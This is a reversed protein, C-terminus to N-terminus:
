VEQSMELLGLVEDFPMEPLFLLSQNQTGTMKLLGVLSNLGHCVADTRVAREAFNRIVGGNSMAPNKINFSNQATYVNQVLWRSSNVIFPNYLYCNDMKNADCFPQLETMVENVWGNGSSTIIDMLRGDNFTDWPAVIQRNVLEQACRTITDLYITNTKADPNVKAYDLLSMVVWSTTVSNPKRYDDDLFPSKDKVTNLMREAIKTAADYYKEDQTVGYLRSLASLVQGSYLYSNKTKVLLKGNLKAVVPRVSGDNSVRTLLWNGAQKASDLYKKDHTREYLKILTFITKSSTGVVFRGGEFLIDKKGTPKDYSYHFAGANEGEHNQMSLLFAAMPEINKEIQKYLPESDLLVEQVKLLTYLSSATYITRLKIEKEDKAADYKKFFGHTDQDMMRLLYASESQIRARVLSTDFQRVPIINGILEYTLGNDNSVISYQRDDPPYYFTIKFTLKKLNVESGTKSALDAQAQKMATNTAERLTKSLASTSAKGVGIEKGNQYIAVKATWHILYFTPSGGNFWQNDFTKIEDPTISESASKQVFSMVDRRFADNQQISITEFTGAFTTNVFFIFISCIFIVFSKKNQLKKIKNNFLKNM